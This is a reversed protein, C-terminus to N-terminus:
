YHEELYEIIRTSDWIVKEGDQLIPVAYQGTMERLFEREEKPRPVEITDFEIGKYALVRRVKVM